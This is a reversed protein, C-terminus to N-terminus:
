LKKGGVFHDSCIRANASPVWDNRPIQKLWQRRRKTDKPFRHYSRQLGNLKDKGSSNYCKPVECCNGSYVKKRSRKPPPMSKTLTAQGDGHDM